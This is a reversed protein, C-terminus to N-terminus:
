DSEPTATKKIEIPFLMGNGEIIIDIEKTDKDRYYHVFPERGSNYYSKVIESIAYNELLAGSMAGSM